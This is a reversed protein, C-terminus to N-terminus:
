YKKPSMDLFARTPLFPSFEALTQRINMHPLLPNGRLTAIKALHYIQRTHRVNVLTKAFNWILHCLPLKFTAIKVFFAFKALIAFIACERWLKAFTGIVHCLRGKSLPSKPSFPLYQSRGGTKPFIWILHCLPGKLTAIKVFVVLDPYIVFIPSM